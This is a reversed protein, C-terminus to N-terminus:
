SCQAHRRRAILHAVDGEVGVTKFVHGNRLAAWQARQYAEESRGWREPLMVPTLALALAARLRHTGEKAYWVQGDFYARIRPAGRRQMEGIVHELHEPRYYWHLPTVIIM